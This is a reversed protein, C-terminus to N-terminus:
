VSRFTLNGGSQRPVTTASDYQSDHPSYFVTLCVTMSSDYFLTTGDYRPELLLALEAVSSSAAVAAAELVDM